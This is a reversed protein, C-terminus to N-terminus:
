TLNSTLKLYGRKTRKEISLIQKLFNQYENNMQMGRQFGSGKEMDNLVNISSRESCQLRQIRM